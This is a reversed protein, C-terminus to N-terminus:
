RETSRHPLSRRSRRGPRLFRRAPRRVARGAPGRVRQADLRGAGGHGHFRAGAPAPLVAGKRRTVVAADKGRRRVGATQRGPRPVTPRLGRTARVRGVSVRALERRALVRRGGRQLSFGRARAASGRRFAAAMLTSTRAYLLHGTPVYRPCSGGEAVIRRKGTVVDLAEIRADEFGKGQVEVTFPLHRGGPLFHPWVHGGETKADLTTLPQPPGGGAPVRLLGRNFFGAYVITGDESWTGGTLTPADTIVRVAGGGVPVTRLKGDTRSGFGIWEGDPSFFPSKASQTGPIPVADPRDLTHLFLQQVGARSAVYALRRDDPSLAILMRFSRDYLGAGNPLNVSLQAPIHKHERGLWGAFALGIVTALSGAVAGAAAWSPRQWAHREVARGANAATRGSSLGAALQLDFVLDRASQVRANADKELCHWLIQQLAAPVNEREPGLEPPEEKLIATMTEAATDKQFARRGSLMEYLVVGFSFIDSRHDAPLGKVQEPSMYGVTGMVQGPETHRSLTPSKTDNSSPLLTPKALGFDLIKIRGDATLFLNEPKLDRHVVGKDHAAALGQAVQLAQEVAKRVPLAGAQLRERLTEGELLEMVAYAVGDQQGLDHIELINLHSLSAVARAEREFRSLAEPDSALHEPLVKVAVERGLKTDRARYVEGMGGAGLPALIEYPGLRTGSTLLM